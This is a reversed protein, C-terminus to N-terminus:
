AADKRPQENAYIQWEAALRMSSCQRRDVRWVIGLRRSKEMMIAAPNELTKMEIRLECLRDTACGVFVGERYDSEGIASGGGNNYLM